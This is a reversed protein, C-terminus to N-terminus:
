TYICFETYIHNIRLCVHKHSPESAAHNTTLANFRVISSSRTNTHMYTYVYTHTNHIGTHTYMCVNTAVMKVLEVMQSLMDAAVHVQM